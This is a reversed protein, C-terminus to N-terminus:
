GAKRNQFVAFDVGRELYTLLFRRTQCNSRTALLAALDEPQDLDLAIGSLDLLHTEARAQRARAIHDALGRGNFTLDIIDPPTCFAANTGLRNHSPALTVARSGQHAALLQTIEDSSILPLDGMVALVGTCGRGKLSSIAQQIAATPGSEEKDELVDFGFSRAMAMAAHDATVLLVGALGNSAGLTSLVDFLMTKALDRRQAGSLVDAMRFKSAAFSKVPVVAWYRDTM